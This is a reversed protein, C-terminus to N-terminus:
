SRWAQGDLPLESGDLLPMALQEALVPLLNDESVAGIRILLGGLRGGIQQQLTLARELDAPSILGAALLLQGLQTAPGEPASEQHTRAISSALDM